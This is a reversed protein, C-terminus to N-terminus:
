CRWHLWRSSDIRRGWDLVFVDKAKEGDKHLAVGAAVVHKILVLVDVAM